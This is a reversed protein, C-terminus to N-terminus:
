QTVAPEAGAAERVIALVADAHRDVRTSGVGPIKALAAATQPRQLALDRLQRNTFLAYPPVGQELAQANRWARLVEYLAEDTSCLRPQESTSGASNGPRPAPSPLADRYAILVSWTPTGAVTFFHSVFEVIRRGECFQVVPLDDFCGSPGLPLTFVRLKM